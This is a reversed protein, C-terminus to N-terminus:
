SNGSTTPNYCAFISLVKLWSEGTWVYCSWHSSYQLGHSNQVRSAYEGM